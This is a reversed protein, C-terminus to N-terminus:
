FFVWCSALSQIFYKFYLFFFFIM